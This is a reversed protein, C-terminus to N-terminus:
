HPSQTRTIALGGATVGSQRNALWPQWRCVAMPAIAAASTYSDANTRRKPSARCRLTGGIRVSEEDPWCFHWHVVANVAPRAEAAVSSGHVGHTGAQRLVPLPMDGATPSFASRNPLCKVRTHTYMLTASCTWLAGLPCLHPM